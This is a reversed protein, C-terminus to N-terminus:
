IIVLRSWHSVEYVVTTRGGGVDSFALHPASVEVKVLPMDSFASYSGEKILLLSGM